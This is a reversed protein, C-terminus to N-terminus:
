AAGQERATRSRAAARARRAKKAREKAWRVENGTISNCSGCAPRINTRIYKGGRDGPVIRDVTITSFVLLLGCRYCRTAPRGLGKLVAMWGDPIGLANPVHLTPGFLFADHLEDTEYMTDLLEEWEHRAVLDVDAACTQLLWHKRRRRAESDGSVNGNSTGRAQGTM